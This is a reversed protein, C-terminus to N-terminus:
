NGASRGITPRGQSLASMHGREGVGWGVAEAGLERRKGGEVGVADWLVVMTQNEILVALQADRPVCAPQRGAVQPAARTCGLSGEIEGVGRPVEVDATAGRELGVVVVVVVVVVGERVADTDLVVAGVQSGAGRWALGAADHGHRGGVHVGRRHLLRVRRERAV